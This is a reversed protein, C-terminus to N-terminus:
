FEWPRSRELVPMSERDIPIPVDLGTAWARASSWPWDEPHKVLGRRVPNLHIYRLKEHIDRATRMNRDYGGGPQWFRHTRRGNPPADFMAALGDPNCAKLFAVARRAVPQKVASLIASIRAGEHPLVLLHVHEPMLVFAWLAFGASARARDLSELFWTRARDRGLFARRRFCSFTLCHADWPIDWRKCRKRHPPDIGM